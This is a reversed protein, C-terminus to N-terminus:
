PARRTQIFRTIAEISGFNERTIDVDKVTVGHRRQVEAVLEIFALSDLVGTELLDETDSLKLEPRLQLFTDRIYSHLQERVSRETPSGEPLDSAPAVAPTVVHSNM